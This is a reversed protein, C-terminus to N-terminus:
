FELLHGMIDFNWYIVWLILSIFYFVWFVLNVM